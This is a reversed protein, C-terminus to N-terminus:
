LVDHDIHSATGAFFHADLQAPQYWPMLASVAGEDYDYTTILAAKPDTVTSSYKATAANVQDVYDGLVIM